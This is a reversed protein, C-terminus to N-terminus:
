LEKFTQECFFWIFRNVAALRDLSFVRSKDQLEHVECKISCSIIQSWWKYINDQKAVSTNIVKYTCKGSQARNHKHSNFTVQIALFYDAILTQM